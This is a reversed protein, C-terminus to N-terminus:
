RQSAATDTLQKGHIGTAESCNGSLRKGSGSNGWTQEMGKQRDTQEAGKRKGEKTKRKEKRRKKEAEEGEEDRARESRKTENRLLAVDRETEM